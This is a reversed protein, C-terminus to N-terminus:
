DLDSTKSLDLLGLQPVNVFASPISGSLSNNSLYLRELKGMQCLEPPITGNLHNSSLNLLTINSLNSIQIPILGYILNDDLHIQALNMSINGIIPHLEGGLNNGALELEQLNSSNVSLNNSGLDLYKLEHLFGLENPIKGELLNSSLSLQNLKLLYGLGAPNKGELLNGSLDLIKLFSLGSLAPSITGRLSHHSLDLDVVRKIKKDCVIGTWNCLHITFSNWSEWLHHPDSVIGFMFSILSDRDNLLIQHDNQQGLVMSFVMVLFFFNYMSFKSYGM